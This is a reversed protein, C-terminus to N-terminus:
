SARHRVARAGPRVCSRQSSSLSAAGTRRGRRRPCSSVRRRRHAARQLVASRHLCQPRGLRRRPDDPDPESLDARRQVLHRPHCVAISTGDPSWAAGSSILRSGSSALERVSRGEGDLVFLQGQDLYALRDAKAARASPAVCTVVALASVLVLAIRRTMGVGGARVHGSFCTQARGVTVDRARPGTQNFPRTSSRSPRPLAPNRGRRRSLRRRSPRGRTPPSRLARRVRARPSRRSGM